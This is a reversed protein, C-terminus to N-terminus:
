AYFEAVVLLQPRWINEKRVVPELCVVADALAAVLAGLDTNRRAFCAIYACPGIM